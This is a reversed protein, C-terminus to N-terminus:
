RVGSEELGDLEIASEVAAGSLQAASGCRLKRANDGYDKSHGTQMAPRYGVKIGFAAPIRKRWVRSLRLSM